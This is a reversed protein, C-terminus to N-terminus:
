PSRLISPPTETWRGVTASLLVLLSWVLGAWALIRFFTIIVVAGESDTARAM